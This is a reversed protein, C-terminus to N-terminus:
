QREERYIGLKEQAARDSFTFIVADKSARIRTWYWAPVTAVDSEGATFTKGDAEIQIEGELVVITKGDTARSAKTEFGKPIHTLWTAITPMAWGGDLPNVYRLTHALHPDIQATEAVQMLAPRSKAYTYNFIPSTLGFPSHPKMPGLGSGYESVSHGEPKTLIQSKDNMHDMFAAEYFNVMHLDLGDVWIVPKHEEQGHDHWGMSPTIIFDGRQMVTKEGAVATFGGNGELVMRLASATHRHAPAIEGPMILQYGAYMTATVRSGGPMAPNELVLVRREAEEATLLGGAEMLLPKAKAFSWVFPAFKSKPETPVLGKLVEWLPALSQPELRDYFKKRTASVEATATQM